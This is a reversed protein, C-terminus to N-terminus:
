CSAVEPRAEAQVYGAKVCAGRIAPLDAVAVLHLRGSKTHPILNRRALRQLHHVQCPIRLAALGLTLHTSNEM